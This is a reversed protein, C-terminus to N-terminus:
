DDEDSLIKMGMYGQIARLDEIQADARAESDYFRSYLNSYLRMGEKTAMDSLANEGRVQQRFTVFGKDYNEQLIELEAPIFDLDFLAQADDASIEHNNNIPSMPSEKETHFAIMDLYSYQFAPLMMMDLAWGATSNSVMVRNEFPAPVEIIVGGFMPGIKGSLVGTRAM